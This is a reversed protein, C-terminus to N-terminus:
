DAPSDAKVRRMIVAPMAFCFIGLLLSLTITLAPIVLFRPIFDIYAEYTGAYIYRGEVRVGDGVGRALVVVERGAPLTTDDEDRDWKAAIYGSGEVVLTGDPFAMGFSDSVRYQTFSESEGVLLVLERDGLPGVAELDALTEIPDLRNPVLADLLDGLAFFATLFALLGFTILAPRTRAVEQPTKAGRLGLAYVLLTLFGLFLTAAIM